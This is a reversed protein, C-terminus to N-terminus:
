ILSNYFDLRKSAIKNLDRNEAVWVALKAAQDAVFGLDKHAKIADVWQSNSGCFTACDRPIDDSYPATDSCIFAVRKAGAEYAKLSSKYGNFENNKLPAIAVDIRDYSQAYNDFDMTKIRRYNPNHYRNSAIREMSDWVNKVGQREGPNNYGCLTMNLEPFHNLVPELTKIDPLHSSGAVYGFRIGGGQNVIRGGKFISTGKEKGYEREEQHWQGQQLPIANPIVTVNPNVTRLKGALRETTTTIHDALVSCMEHAIKPMNQRNWSNYIMHDHPLIWWDDWDIIVKFGYKVKMKILEEVHFGPTRNFTVIKCTQLHQELTKADNELDLGMAEFPKRIRWYSCGDGSHIFPVIKLNGDADYLNSKVRHASSIDIM